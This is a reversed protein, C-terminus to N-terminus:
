KDAGKQLGAFSVFVESMSTERVEHSVIGLRAALEPQGAPSEIFAFIRRLREFGVLMKDKDSRAAALEAQLGAVGAATMQFVITSGVQRAVDWAGADMGGLFWDRVDDPSGRTRVTVKYGCGYVTKLRQPTGVCQLQGNVMIGIRDSLADAEEMSHTTLIVSTRQKLKEIVNWISRRIAVDVGTTPEDLFVVSPNGICASALSVKRKNGGSLSEISADAFDMLGVEGILSEIEAEVANANGSSSGRIAALFRLHERPTLKGWLTDFQPCIGIIARAATNYRPLISFPGITAHGGIPQVMGILTKITTTKGCGNPGLYAFCEHKRIALWLDDLVTFRETEGPMWWRARDRSVPKTFEVRVGAMRIIDENATAPDSIRQIERVVEADISGDGGGAAAAPVAVATGDFLESTSARIYQESSSGGVANTASGGNGRGLIWNNTVGVLAGVFSKTNTLDRYVLAALIYAYLFTQAVFILSLILIPNRGTDALSALTFPTGNQAALGIESFARYLGFTPLAASIGYLAGTSIEDNAVFYVFFYPVFVVISMGFGLAAGASAQTRFMFALCMSLVICCLSFTLMPLFWNLYNTNIFSPIKFLYLVLSSAGINIFFIVINIVFISAYYAFPHLGMTILYDRHGAEREEVVASAVISIMQAFASAAFPPVFASSIDYGFKDSAFVTFLSNFSVAGTQQLLAQKANDAVAEMVPAIDNLRSGTVLVDDVLVALKISQKGDADPATPVADPVVIAAPVLSANPRGRYFDILSAQFDAASAFPMLPMAPKGLAAFSAKLSATVAAAQADTAKPLVLGVADVDKLASPNVFPRSFSPMADASPIVISTSVLSAISIMIVPILFGAILSRLERRILTRRMALAAALQRWLSPM